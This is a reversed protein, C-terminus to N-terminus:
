YYDFFAGLSQQAEAAAREAQDRQTLANELAALGAAKEAEIRAAARGAREAEAQLRTATQVAEEYQASTVHNTSAATTATMASMAASAQAVAAQAAAERERLGACAAELGTITKNLEGM